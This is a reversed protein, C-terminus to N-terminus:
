FSGNGDVPAGYANPGPQAPQLLLVLLIIWGVVPILFLLLLLGTKGTDHLRRVGVALNPLLLVLGILGVLWSFPSQGAANSTANQLIGLVINLVFVALFWTVWEQRSARGTFVAYKSFTSKLSDTINM